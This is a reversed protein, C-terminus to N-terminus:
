FFSNFFNYKVFTEFEFTLVYSKWFLKAPINNSRHNNLSIFYYYFEYLFFFSNKFITGRNHFITPIDRLSLNYKVWSQLYLKIPLLSHQWKGPFNKKNLLYTSSLEHILFSPLALNNTTKRERIKNQHAVLYCGICDCIKLNM